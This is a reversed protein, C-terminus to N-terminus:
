GKQEKELGIKGRMRCLWQLWWFRLFKALTSEHNQAWRLLHARLVLTATSSALHTEHDAQTPHHLVSQSRQLLVFDCNDRWPEQCEAEQYKKSMTKTVPIIHLVAHHNRFIRSAGIGTCYSPLWHCIVEVM